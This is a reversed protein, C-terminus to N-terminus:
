YPIILKTGVKVTNADKLTRRNAEFIKRWRGASGYYKQAIASLTEGRGVIHYRPPKAAGSVRQLAPTIPSYAGAGIMGMEALWTEALKPWNAIAHGTRRLGFAHGGEAFLHMAVPVGTNKLAVYYVLANNVSDVPDDTAQIILTPPTKGTVPLNPNLVLNKGPYWLHGPYMAIAFDPRCSERDAADIPRYLRKDYRTSIAAALHGGASFGIAGIKRPDIGWQSANYRVLGMTRQADQLAQPSERYGDSQVTPVRYKLLVATIGKSTLWDCVETGELDIALGKYGGGPFVVVAAGTNTGQPPYVTMTPETVNNVVMAPRGAVLKATPVCNEPGPAAVADPAAGPWIPIQALGGSPEWVAGWATVSGFALVVCFAFLLSKMIAEMAQLCQIRHWSSGRKTGSFMLM